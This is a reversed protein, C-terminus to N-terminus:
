IKTKNRYENLLAMCKRSETLYYHRRHRATTHVIGNEGFNIGNDTLYEMESKSIKVINIWKVKM